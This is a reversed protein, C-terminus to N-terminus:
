LERGNALAKKNALWRAADRIDFAISIVDVVFLIVLFGLYTSPLEAGSLLLGIVIVVMPTWFVIHPLAMAGSMSRTVLMIPLNFAMGAIALVAILIGLPQDLFALPILNVPVLIFSVWIQVWLPLNRFSTWIDLLM